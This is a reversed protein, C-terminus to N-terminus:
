TTMALLGEGQWQSSCELSTAIWEFLQWQSSHTNWRIVSTGYLDPHCDVWLSVNQNKQINQINKIRWLCFFVWMSCCWVLTYNLWWITCTVQPYILLRGKNIQLCYWSPLNKFASSLGYCFSIFLTISLLSDCCSPSPRDISTFLKSCSLTPTCYM